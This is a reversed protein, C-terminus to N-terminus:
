AARRRGVLQLATAVAALAVGLGSVATWGGLNWALTATSSGIAGGLFMTGMFVTNIRARAEPRLAFIIHQNSVLASQMAFDLLVVGVIMGTISTWLGFLLWSVLTLVTGLVIVGHPGRKDAIRGAVPAALIGVAGVVGFLGAVDAGLQYQPQELRLALITWFVTFAAFLLGQTISALRLAPFELWLHVISRMLAPYRIDANPHSRPLTAAMLAGAGLALPVGLWFMERWGGHTAVFGALTRSLLIGTLLGAMVTGVVAGRKEPSALHAAFPVIQQAVTASLGLLLSAALLLGASGATATVALAAALLLFQGVILRRREVLDGLPVLLVLGVAYGLQTATPIMGSLSGPLDREILGLMPQNYYINAVAVGTAAALAFTLGRGLISKGPREEKQARLPMTDSISM